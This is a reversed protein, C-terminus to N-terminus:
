RERTAQAAMARAREPAELPLAMLHQPIYVHGDMIRRATRVITAGLIRVPEVDASTTIEVDIRGSPHGIVLRSRRNEQLDGGGGFIGWSGSSPHDGDTARSRVVDGAVTGPIRAATGLAIAGTVAFAKHVRGPNIIRACLHTGPDRSTGLLAVKFTSALQRAMSEGVVGWRFLHAAAERRLEEVAAMLGPTREIVDPSESGALGFSAAQVFAYLNGSDVLSVEVPGRPTSLAERPRGTPLLRGTISGAPDLFTLRIGAGRGPVGDIACDGETCARGREVPVDALIRKGTNTNHIRVRTLPERPTVIGEDIAFPGVAAAMNGCTVAYNITAEAIGVQGFTYDVDSDVRDSASIIALKSTLPDAGGLGDIQRRDPSGFVADIVADRRAINAPLDRALLFVGKSTGGRMVVAPIKTDM